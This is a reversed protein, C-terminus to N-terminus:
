RRRSVLGITGVAIAALGRVMIWTIKVTGVLLLGLLRRADASTALIWTLGALAAVALVSSLVEMSEEPALSVMTICLVAITALALPGIWGPRGGARVTRVGRNTHDHGDVPQAQSQQTGRQGEASVADSSASEAASRAKPAPGRTPWPPDGTSVRRDDLARRTRNRTDVLWKENKFSYSRGLESQAAMLHARIDVVADSVHFQLRLDDVTLASLKRAAELTDQLRRLSTYTRYGQSLAAQRTKMTAGNHIRDLADPWGAMDRQLADRLYAIARQISDRLMQETENRRSQDSRTSASESAAHSPRPGTSSAAIQEVWRRSEELLADVGTRLEAPARWGFVAADADNLLQRVEDMSYKSSSQTAEQLRLLADFRRRADVDRLVRWALDVAIFGEHSGGVDPHARRAASRYADALGEADADRPAGITKYLNPLLKATPM